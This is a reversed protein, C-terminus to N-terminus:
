SRLRVQVALEGVDCGYVLVLCDGFAPEAPAEGERFIIRPTSFIIKAPTSHLLAKAQGAIGNAMEGLCDRIMDADVSVPTEALMRRALIEAVALPMSLVLADLTASTLDIVAAIEGIWRHGPRREASLVVGETRDLESLVVGSAATFAELIVNQTQQDIDIM